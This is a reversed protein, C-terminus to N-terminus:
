SCVIFPDLEYFKNMTMTMTGDMYSYSLSKIIYSDISGNSLKRYQIKQNTELFPIIVMELTVTDTLRSKLWTEYEAREKALASTTIDDYEGGSLIQLRYGIKDISFPSESNNNEAYGEIQYMGAYVWLKQNSLYKFCYADKENFFEYQMPEYTILNSAESSKNANTLHEVITYNWEGPEKDVLFRYVSDKYICCDGSVYKKTELFKEYRIINTHRITIPYTKNVQIEETTGDENEKEETVTLTLYANSKKQEDSLDQIKDFVVGVVIDGKYSFHELSLKTSLVTTTETSIETGSETETKIEKVYDYEGFESEDAYRDTEISQGYVKTANRVTTLDYDCNESIVLGEMVTYDLVDLEHNCLPIPQFVFVGDKDFFMEYGPYLDRIKSLVEWLMTGKDFELDYPIMHWSGHDLTNGEADCLKDEISDEDIEEPLTGTDIRNQKWNVAYGRLCSMQGITKVDHEKIGYQELLDIVTKRIDNGEYRNDTDDDPNLKKCGKIVITEGFFLGRHEECEQLPKSCYPCEGVIVGGFTGDLLTILDSCQFTIDRTSGTYAYSCSTFLYIGKTYWYIKGFHEFGLDIRVRNKLWIRNYIGIDYSEDYSHITFNCTRRVDSTADESGDGSTVYGQLEDVIMNNENLLYVKVHILKHYKLINIDTQIINYRAM